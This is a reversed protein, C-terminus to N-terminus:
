DESSPTSTWLGKRSKRTDRLSRDRKREERKAKEYEYEKGFDKAFLAKSM